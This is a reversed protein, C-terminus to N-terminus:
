LSMDFMLKVKQKCQQNIERVNIFLCVELLHYTTFRSTLETKFKFGLVSHNSCCTFTLIIMYRIMFANRFLLNIYLKLSFQPWSRTGPIVLKLVNKSVLGLTVAVPGALNKNPFINKNKDPFKDKLKKWVLVAHLHQFSTFLIVCPFVIIRKILSSDNWNGLDTNLLSSIETTKISTKTTDKLNIKKRPIQEENHFTRIVNAKRSPRETSLLIYILFNFDKFYDLM